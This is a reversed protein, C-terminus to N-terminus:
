KSAKGSLYGVGVPVISALISTAWKKDDRSSQADIMLSACVCVIVGAGILTVGFLTTGRWRQHAADAQEQKLRSQLEAPAELSRLEFKFRKPDIYDSLKQHKLAPEM